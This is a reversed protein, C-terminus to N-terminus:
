KKIVKHYELEKDTSVSVMYIGKQWSNTSIRYNQSYVQSQYIIRASIDTVQIETIYSNDSRVTLYGSAPNPFVTTQLSQLNNIGTVSKERYHIGDFSSRIVYDGQDISFDVRLDTKGTLTGLFVRFLREKVGNAATVATATPSLWNCYVYDASDALKAKVSWFQNSLPSAVLLYIEYEKSPDFINNEQMYIDPTNNIVHTEVYNGDVSGNKVGEDTRYNWESKSDAGSINEIIYESPFLNGPHCNLFLFGEEDPDNGGPDDPPTAGAPKRSNSGGYYTLDQYEIQNNIETASQLVIVEQGGRILRFVPLGEKLPVEFSNIGAPLEQRNKEGGIEIEVTGPETLFALLEIRDKPTDSGSGLRFKTTQISPEATVSHKRHFYYLVDRKIEPQLGTKFWTTYYATLDYFSYNIGTSPSIVTHESYDNWTILQVWDAGGEIANKWMVRIAESNGTEWYCTSRPRMDQPAVPMMWLPGYAKAEAPVNIWSAQAKPSRSGWDSMGYSIPAFSAAYNKWGQFLPVFAVEIGAEKMEDLWNTWWAASKNHANYPSVVLRGDNLRYAAPYASLSKVLETMETTKDEFVEMDPMLVIKFGEDVRNAAELLLITRDLHSGTHSLLDCTFGDLGAAIARRVEEEMNLERWNIEPRPSQPLPRIRLYGGYAAHKGSEGNVNLYATQYYDNDSPKNDFSLPFPTFYHAFVLKESARLSEVSPKDFPFPTDYEWPTPVIEQANLSCFCVLLVSLVYIKQSLSKKM